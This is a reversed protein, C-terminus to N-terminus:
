VTAEVLELKLQQGAKVAAAFTQLDPQWLGWRRVVEGFEEVDHHRVAWTGKETDQTCHCLEHDVLALRQSPSLRLWATWNFEITFDVRALYALKGGAKAATGLRIRGQREMTERFLYAIKASALETHLLPIIAQAIQEPQDADTLRDGEPWEALVPTGLAELVQRRRADLAPPLKTDLIRDV